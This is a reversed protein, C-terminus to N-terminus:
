QIICRRLLFSFEILFHGSNNCFSVLALDTTQAKEKTFLLNHERRGSCYANSNLSFLFLMFLGRRACPALETYIGLLPRSHCQCVYSLHRPQLDCHSSASVPLGPVRVGHRVGGSPFHQCVSLLSTFTSICSSLFSLLSLSLSLSFSLSLSLCTALATYCRTSASKSHARWREWLLLGFVCGVGVQVPPGCCCDFVVLCYTINLLWQM